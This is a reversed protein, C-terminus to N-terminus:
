FDDPFGVTVGDADIVAQLELRKRVPRGARGPLTMLVPFLMRDRTGNQRAAVSAMRLVDHARGRTSEGHERVLRTWRAEPLADLNIVDWLARTIAVPVVFGGLMGDPGSGSWESVDVLAGDEVADARTYVSIPEGFFATLWDEPPPLPAHSGEVSPQPRDAM